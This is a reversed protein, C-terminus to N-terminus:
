KKEVKFTRVGTGATTSLRVIYMGPNGKVAIQKIANDAVTVNETYLLQGTVDMIEVNFDGGEAFQIYLENVFPNPYTTVEVSNGVLPNLDVTHDYVVITKEMTESSGWDNVLTLKAKYTGEVSYAVQTSGSTATYSSNTPTTGEIEWEPITTIVYSGSLMPSGAVVSPFKVVEVPEGIGYYEGYENTNTNGPPGWRPENAEPALSTVCSKWVSTSVYRPNASANTNKKFLGNQTMYDYSWNGRNLYRGDSDYEELDWYGKLDTPITTGQPFGNMATKVESESLQKHWIQIDDISGNFGNLGMVTGGGIYARFNYCTGYNSGMGLSSSFRQVGNIYVKTNRSANTAIAVHFWDGIPLVFDVAGHNKAAHDVNLKYDVNNTPNNIMIKWEGAYADYWSGCTANYSNRSRLTFFHNQNDMSEPISKIKCWFAVTIPTGTPLYGGDITFSNVDEIEVAKSTSGDADRSTFALTHAQNDAPVDKQSVAEGDITYSDIRPMAGVEPVTIKVLGNYIETTSVGYSNVYTVEVGYLGIASLMNTTFSTGGTFTGNSIYSGDANLLRWRTAVGHSPDTFSVTFEENAKIVPKDVEIGELITVDSCDMYNSWTIESKTTGDPAVARSGVRVSKTGNLDIPVDVAYAAWSTTTTVLQPEGGDQQAWIEFYWTDVEDNYTSQWDGSEVTGGGSGSGSDTTSVKLVVDAAVAQNIQEKYLGLSCPDPTGVATENDNTCYSMKIRLPIYASAATSPVNITFTRSTSSASGSTFPTHTATPNTGIRENADSFDGDANWDAFCTIYTWNFSGNVTLTYSSGKTVAIASSENNKTGRYADKSNSSYENIAVTSGNLSINSIARDTGNNPDRPTGMSSCYTILLPAITEEEEEEEEGPDPSEGTPKPCNWAMKFDVGKYTTKLVEYAALQPEVPNYTVGQKVLAVEGILIETGADVSNFRMGLQAIVKNAMEATLDAELVTWETADMTGMSQYIATSESGEASMAFAMSAKGQLAKYRVRIKYTEGADIPFQTKYMQIFRYTRANLANDFTLKLCSGGFWADDFTFTAHTDSPVASTSRSMYSTTIWWRWTPLHDQMGINYWEDNYTTVGENNFFTGIGLNMYSIFPFYDNTQWSLASKAMVLKNVGHFDPSPACKGASVTLNNVPNQTGGTFFQECKKLYCAQKVKPDNGEEGARGWIQNVDHAGWLGVSTPTNYIYEWHFGATGGQMDMGGYVDYSNVYSSLGASSAMSNANSAATSLTGQGWNYNLFFANAWPFFDSFETGGGTTYLASSLNYFSFHLFPVDYSTRYNHCDKLLNKMGSRVDNWQQESNFGLGDIGYYRFLKMLKDAGGNILSNYNQGHGGDIANLGVGWAAASVVENAVGNKHCIDTFNGPCRLFGQTWNGYIDIYSWSSFAESNADYRPLSTWGNSSENIPVWWHVKRNDRKTESAIPDTATNIFRKLPRQRGIFFNDYAANSQISPASGPTWGGYYSYMWGSVDGTVIYNDHKTAFVPIAVFCSLILFLRAKKM